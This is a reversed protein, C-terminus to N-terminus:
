WFCLCKSCNKKCIERARGGGGVVGVDVGDGAVEDDVVAVVEVDEAM